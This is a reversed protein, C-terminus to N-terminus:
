KKIITDKKREIILSKIRTTPILIIRKKDLVSLWHTNWTIDANSIEGKINVEADLYLKGCNKILM